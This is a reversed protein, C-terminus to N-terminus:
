LHMVIRTNWQRWSIIPDRKLDKCKKTQTRPIKGALISQLCSAIKYTGGDKRQWCLSINEEYSVLVPHALTSQLMQLDGGDERCNTARWNELKECKIILEENLLGVCTDNWQLCLVAHSYAKFKVRNKGVELWTSVSLKWKKGFWECRVIEDTTTM